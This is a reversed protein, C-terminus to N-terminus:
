ADDGNTIEYLKAYATRYHELANILYDIEVMDKEGRDNYYRSREILDLMASDDYRRIVTM